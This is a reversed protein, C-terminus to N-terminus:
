IVRQRPKMGNLIPMMIPLMTPKPIAAMNKVCNRKRQTRFKRGNRKNKWGITMFDSFVEQLTYQKNEAEDSFDYPYPTLLIKRLKNKAEAIKLNLKPSLMDLATRYQTPLSLGNDGGTVRCADFMKNALKSENAEIVPGKPASNKYDYQFDEATLAQGPITLCLFQNPNDGGLNDEIEKYLLEFLAQDEDDKENGARLINKPLSTEDRYIGKKTLEAAESM